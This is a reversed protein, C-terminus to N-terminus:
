AHLGSPRRALAMSDGPEAAYLRKKPSKSLRSGCYFWILPRQPPSLELHDKQGYEWQLEVSDSDQYLVKKTLFHFNLFFYPNRLNWTNFHITDKSTYFYPQWPNKNPTPPNPRWCLPLFKRRLPSHPLKECTTCTYKLSLSGNSLSIKFLMPLIVCFLWCCMNWIWRM